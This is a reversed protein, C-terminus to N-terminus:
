RKRTTLLALPARVAISLVKRSASPQYGCPRWVPAKKLPIFYNYICTTARHSKNKYRVCVSTFTILLRVRIGTNLVDIDPPAQRANPGSSQLHTQYEQHGHFAPSM